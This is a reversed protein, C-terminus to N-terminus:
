KRRPLHFHGKKNLGEIYTKKSIQELMMAGKRIIYDNTLPQENDIISRLKMYSNLYDNEGISPMQHSSSTSSASSTTIKNSFSDNNYKYYQLRNAMDEFDKSRTKTIRYKFYGPIGYIDFGFKIGIPSKLMALHYFMLSDNQVLGQASLKYKNLNFSLTPVKLMNNEIAIKIGISDVHLTKSKGFFLWGLFKPLIKNKNISINHGFIEANSVMSAPIIKMTSDIKWTADLNANFNGEFATLLPSITKAQPLLQIIGLPNIDGVKLGINAYAFSSQPTYYSGSLDINALNSWIKLGKIELKKNWLRLDAKASDMRSDDYFANKANVKLNINLNSPVQAFKKPAKVKNQQQAYAVGSIVAPLITNVNIKEVNIGGNVTLMSDCFIYNHWNDIRFNGSVTANGVKMKISNIAATYQSFSLNLNDISNLVPFQPLIYHMNNLWLDGVYKWNGIIDWLKYYTNPNVKVWEYMKAKSGIGIENIFICASDPNTYSLKELIAIYNINPEGDRPSIASFKSKFSKLSITDNNTSISRVNDVVALGNTLSPFLADKEANVDTNIHLPGLNIIAENPSHIMAHPSEVDVNINNEGPIDVVNLTAYPISVKVKTQPIVFAFDKLRVKDKLEVNSVSFLEPHTLPFKIYAEGKMNGRIDMKNSIIPNLDKLDVDCGINFSAIPNKKIFKITGDINAYSNKYKMDLNAIDILISDPTLYDFSTNAILRIDKIKGYRDIKANGGISSIAFNVVPYIKKKFSVCGKTTADICLPLQYDYKLLKSSGKIKLEKISNKLNPTSVKAIVSISDQKGYYGGKLDFLTSKNIRIKIHDAKVEPDFPNLGAQLNVKVSHSGDFIKMGFLKLVTHYTQTNIKYYRLNGNLKSNISIQPSTFAIKSDGGKLSIDSKINTAHFQDIYIQKYKIRIQGRMSVNDASIDMTRNRRKNVYVFHNHGYLHVENLYLKEKHGHHSVKNTKPKKFRWVNWGPTGNKDLTVLCFGDTVEAKPITVTLSDEFFSKINIEAKLKKFRCLTDTPEKHLYSILYGNNAKVEVIPFKAFNLQLDECYMRGAVFRNLINLAYPSLTNTTNLYIFIGIVGIVCM